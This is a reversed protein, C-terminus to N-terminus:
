SLRYEFMFRGIQMTGKGNATPAILFSRVPGRRADKQAKIAGLSKGSAAEYFKVDVTEDDVRRYGFVYEGPQLAVEGVSIPVQVILFHSYKGEAAYGATILVAGAIFKGQGDIVGSATRFETEIREKEVVARAPIVSRLEKETAQRWAFAGALGSICCVLVLASLINKMPNKREVVRLRIVTLIFASLSFSQARCFTKM